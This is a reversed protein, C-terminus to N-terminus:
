ISLPINSLWLLFSDSDTRTLHILRSGTLVSNLLDYLSFCIDYILAYIHFRSFSTSIFRSAPCSCLHLFLSCVQPCLPPLLPHSSQIGDSVPHVHTQTPEPLQHHVPFSPISCVMPNPFTPCSQCVSSFQHVFLNQFASYIDRVLQLFVCM